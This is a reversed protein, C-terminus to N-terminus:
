NMLKKTRRKSKNRKQETMEYVNSSPPSLSNQITRQRGAFHMKKQQSAELSFAGRQNRSNSSGNTTGPVTSINSQKYFGDGYSTKAM